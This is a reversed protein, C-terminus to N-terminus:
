TRPAPIVKFTLFGLTRRNMEVCLFLFCCCCYCCCCFLVLRVFSEDTSCKPSVCVSVAPLPHPHPTLPFPFCPLPILLKEVWNWNSAQVGRGWVGGSGCGPQCLSFAVTKEGTVKKSTIQRLYIRKQAPTYTPIHTHPLPLLLPSKIPCLQSALYFYIYTCVYKCLTCMCVCICKCIYTSM